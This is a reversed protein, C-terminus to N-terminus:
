RQMKFHWISFDQKAMRTNAFPNAIGWKALIHNALDKKEQTLAHPKGDIYDVNLALRLGGTLIDAIQVFPITYKAFLFM